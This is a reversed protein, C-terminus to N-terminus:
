NAPAGMAEAIASFVANPSQVGDVVLLQGQQALAECLPLTDQEFARLRAELPPADVADLADDARGILAEPPCDLLVFLPPQTYKGMLDTWAALHAVSRPFGDVVFNLRGQQFHREMADRLVAVVVDVPVLRGAAAAQRIAGAYPSAPDDLAASLEAECSVLAFGLRASLLASQTSKGAGPGGIPFVVLPFEGSADSAAAAAAAAASQSQSQSQSQSAAGRAPAITNPRPISRSAATNSAAAFTSGPGYQGDGEFLANTFGQYEVLGDQQGYLM